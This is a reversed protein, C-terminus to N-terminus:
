LSSEDRECGDRVEVRGARSFEVVACGSWFFIACGIFCTFYGPCCATTMQPKAPIPLVWRWLDVVVVSFPQFTM